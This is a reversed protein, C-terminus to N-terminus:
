WEVRLPEPMWPTKVWSWSWPFRELLLDHAAHEVQLLWAGDRISLAGFRRLFTARFSAPSMDGLVSAHDIVAALLRDCEERQESRLPRELAFDAEPALGCLLKALPLRFEPPEPDEFALAALLAIAQMPAHEDAFRHADLLGARTFFPDLFPWLIVLGADDVYLQDLGALGDRQGAEPWRPRGPPAPERPSDAQWPDSAGPLVPAQLPSSTRAAQPARPVAGIRNSEGHAPALAGPPASEAPDVTPPDQAHGSDGRKPLVPTQPSSSARAAQAARLISVADHAEGRALAALVTSRLRAGDPHSSGIDGRELGLRRRIAQIDALLGAGAGGSLQEVVAEFLPGDCHRAIRALAQPNDALARLRERLARPAADLLGRISRAILEPDHRDAWWPVNGTRAFTDLLELASREPREPGRTEALRKALAARLAPELKRIFDDDFGDRALTGLDLELREIRDLREPGSLESCVRDILPGIRRERLRSLREIVQRALAVEGTQIEIDARNLRHTAM